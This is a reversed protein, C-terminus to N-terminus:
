IVGIHTKLKRLLRLGTPILRRARVPHMQRHLRQSPVRLVM